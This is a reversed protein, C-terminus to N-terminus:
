SEENLRERGRGGEGAEERSLLQPPKDTSELGASGGVGEEETEAGCFGCRFAAAGDLGAPQWRTPPENKNEEEEEEEAAVEAAAWEWARADGGLTSSHVEQPRAHTHVM